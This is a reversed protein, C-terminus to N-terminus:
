HAMQFPCKSLDRAFFYENSHARVSDNIAAVNQEIIIGDPASGVLALMPTFPIITHTPIDPVILEGAQTRIIGWRTLSSLERAYASVRMRQQVGNLHRAPIKGGKRAFLYGNKELNEEEAKTLSSGEVGNTHIEQSDLKRYRTRMYWLAFMCDLDVKQEAAVMAVTGDVIPQVIEQFRDEIRKTYGRETGEYWARRACFLIDDPKALRVKRRHLDHVSLLNQQNLFRQMSRLPFVHQKITLQNPNTPRTREPKEARYKTPIPIPRSIEGLTRAFVAAALHGRKWDIPGSQKDAVVIVNTFSTVPMLHERSKDIQGHCRKFKKGSGCWCPSNRSPVTM